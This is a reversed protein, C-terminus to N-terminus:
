RRSHCHCMMMIMIMGVNVGGRGVPTDANGNPGITQPGNGLYNPMRDPLRASIASASCLKESMAASTM